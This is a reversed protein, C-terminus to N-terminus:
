PMMPQVGSISVQAVIPSGEPQLWNAEGSLSDLTLATKLLFRANTRLTVSDSGLMPRGFFKSLSGLWYWTLAVCSM